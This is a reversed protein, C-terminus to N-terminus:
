NIFETSHINIKIYNQLDQHTDLDSQMFQNLWVTLEVSKESSQRVHKQFSKRGFMPRILGPRSMFLANTGTQNYDPVIVVFDKAKGLSILSELDKTQMQPLDAPIVLVAGGGKQKITEFAQELAKNLSTPSQERLALGGWAEVMKLITDDKSVVLIRDISNCSDMRAYTGAFLDMNLQYIEEPELYPHLRSKGLHLPKVPLVAWITM